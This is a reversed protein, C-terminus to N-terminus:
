PRIEPAAPASSTTATKQSYNSRVYWMTLPLANQTSAHTNPVNAAVMIHTTMPM